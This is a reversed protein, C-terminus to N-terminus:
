RGAGRRCRRPSRPAAGEDAPLEVGDRHQAAEAGAPRRRRWRGAAPRPAPGGRCRRRPARRRRRAPQQQGRSSAPSRGSSTCPSAEARPADEGAEADASPTARARRGAAAARPAGRRAAGPAAGRRRPPRRGAGSGHRRAATPARATPTKASAHDCASSGAHPSPKAAPMPERDASSASAARAGDPEDRPRRRPPEGGGAPRVHAGPGRWGRGAACGSARTTSASPKPTKRSAVSVEDLCLRRPAPRLRSRAAAPGFRTKKSMWGSWCSPTSAAGARRADARAGCTGM